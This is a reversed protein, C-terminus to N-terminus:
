WTTQSGAPLSPGRCRRRAEVWSSRRRRALSLPAASLTPTATGMQVETVHTVARRPHLQADARYHWIRKNSRQHRRSVAIADVPIGVPACEARSNSLLSPRSSASLGWSVSQVLRFGSEGRLAPPSTGYPCLPARDQGVLYLSPLSDAGWGGEAKPMEGRLAPPSNNLPERGVRLSSSAPPCTPPSAFVGSAPHACRGRALLTDGPAVWELCSGCERPLPAPAPAALRSNLERQDRKAERRSEPHFLRPRQGPGAVRATAAPCASVRGAM